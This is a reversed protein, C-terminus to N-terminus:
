TVTGDDLSCYYSTRDAAGSVSPVDRLIVTVVPSGPSSAIEGRLRLNPHDDPVLLFPTRDLITPGFNVTGSDYDGEAAFTTDMRGDSIVLYFELEAGYPNRGWLSALAKETSARTRSVAAVCDAETPAEQQDPHYLYARPSESGTAAVDPAQSALFAAAVCRILALSYGSM